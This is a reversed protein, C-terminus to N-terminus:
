GPGGDEKWWYAATESSLPGTTEALPNLQIASHYRHGTWEMEQLTNKSWRQDAGRQGGPGAGKRVWDDAGARILMSWIRKPDTDFVAKGDAARIRWDGREMEADLQGPGWGAYGAYVRFRSKDDYMLRGLVEASSSMYIDEVVHITKERLEPSRILLLMETRSVPGGIFLLDTRKGAPDLDPLVTSLRVASPRNIVVGMSGRWDDSLLLVVTKAFNPDRLRESAVLFRGASPTEGPFHSSVPQSLMLREHKQARITAGPGSPHTSPVTVLTMALAMSFRCGPRRRSGPCNTKELLTKM